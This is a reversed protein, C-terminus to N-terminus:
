EVTVLSDLICGIDSGLLDTEHSFSYEIDEGEKGDVFINLFLQNGSLFVINLAKRPRGGDFVKILQTMHERYIEPCLDFYQADPDKTRIASLILNDVYDFQYVIRNKNKRFYLVRAYVPSGGNNYQFPIVVPCLSEALRTLNTESQKWSLIDWYTMFENGNKIKGIYQIGLSKSDNKLEVDVDDKLNYGFTGVFLVHFEKSTFVRKGKERFSEIVILAHTTNM